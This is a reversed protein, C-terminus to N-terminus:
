RLLELRVAFPRAPRVPAIQAHQPEVTGFMMSVAQDVVEAAEEDTGGCGPAVLEPWFVQGAILALFERSARPINSVSLDGAKVEV